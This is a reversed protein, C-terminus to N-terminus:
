EIWGDREDVQRKVMGKEGVIAGVGDEDGGGEGEGEVAGM